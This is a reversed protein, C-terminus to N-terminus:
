FLKILLNNPNPLTDEQGTIRCHASSLNPTLRMMKRLEICNCSRRSCWVGEAVDQAKRRWVNVLPDGVKTSLPPNIRKITMYFPLLHLGEQMWFAVTQAVFCRMCSCTAAILTVGILFRRM